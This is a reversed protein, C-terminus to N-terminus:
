QSFRGILARCNLTYSTAGGPVIMNSAFIQSGPKLLVPAPLPGPVIVLEGAVTTTVAVNNSGFFYSTGGVEAAIGCSLKVVAGVGIVTAIANIGFLLWYENAPVPIIASTLTTVLTQSAAVEELRDATYFNLMDLTPRVADELDHPTESAKITLLPLLGQPFRQIAAKM